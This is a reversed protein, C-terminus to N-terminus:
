KVPKMSIFSSPIHAFVHQPTLGLQMYKASNRVNPLDITSPGWYLYTSGFTFSRTSPLISTIHDSYTVECFTKSGDRFM